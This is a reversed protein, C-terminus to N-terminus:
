DLADVQAQRKYVDLHTYSVPIFGLASSKGPLG